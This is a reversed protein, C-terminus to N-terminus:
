NVTVSKQFLATIFTVIFSMKYFIERNKVVKKLFDQKKCFFYPVPLKEHLCRKLEEFIQKTTIIENTGERSGEMLENGKSNEICNLLVLKLLYSPILSRGDICQMEDSEEGSLKMSMNVKGSNTISSILEQTEAENEKFSEEFSLVTVTENSTLRTNCVVRACIRERPAAKGSCKELNGETADEGNGLNAAVKAALAKSYIKYAYTEDEGGGREIESTVVAGGTADYLASNEVGEVTEDMQSTSVNQVDARNLAAGGEKMITRAQRGDEEGNGASDFMEEDLGQETDSIDWEDIWYTENETYNDPNVLFFRGSVAPHLAVKACMYADKSKRHLRDFIIKEALSFSLRWRNSKSVIHFGTERLGHAVTTFSASGLLHGVYIAPVLDVTIILQKYRPGTWTFKLECTVTGPLLWMANILSHETIGQIQLNECSSDYRLRSLARKAVLVFCEMLDSSQLEGDSFFVDFKKSVLGDKKSVMIEDIQDEAIQVNCIKEFEQLCMMFDFENPDGVKTGEYWSGSTLINGQFRDDIEAMTQALKHIFNEIAVQIQHVEENQPIKGIGLVHTMEQLYNEFDGGFEAFMEEMLGKDIHGIDFPNGFLSSEHIYTVFINDAPHRKPRSKDAEKEESINVRVRAEKADAREIGAATEYYHREYALETATMGNCDLKGTDASARVLMEVVEITGGLAGYHLSTSGYNDTANVAADYAILIATAEIQKNIASLHIATQGNVDKIDILPVSESSPRVGTNNNHQLYYDMVTSIFISNGIGAAYQICTKGDRDQILPDAGYRLLTEISECDENYALLHLATSGWANKSNVVSGNQLLVEVVTIWNETVAYHLPIHMEYDAINVDAHGEIIALTMLETVQEQTLSIADKGGYLLLTHLITQGLNNPINCDGGAKILAIMINRTAKFDFKTNPSKLNLQYWSNLATNGNFNQANFDCSAHLLCSVIDPDKALHLGTNGYQDIENVCENNSILDKVKEIDGMSVATHLKM